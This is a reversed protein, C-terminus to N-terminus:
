TNTYVNYYMIIYKDICIVVIRKIYNQCDIM